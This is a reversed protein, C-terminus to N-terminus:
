REMSNKPVRCEFTYEGKGKGGRRKEAIQLGEESLKAKKANRKGPCPRKRPSFGKHNLLNGSIEEIWEPVSIRLHAAVM